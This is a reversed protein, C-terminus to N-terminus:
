INIINLNNFNANHNVLILNELNACELILREYKQLNSKEILALWENIGQAKQQKVFEKITM